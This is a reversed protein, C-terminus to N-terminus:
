IVWYFGQALAVNGVRACFTSIEEWFQNKVYIDDNESLTSMKLPFPPIEHFNANKRGFNFINSYGLSKVLYKQHIECFDHNEHFQHIMMFIM